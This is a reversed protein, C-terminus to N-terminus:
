ALWGPRREWEGSFVFEAIRKRQGPTEERKRLEDPLSGPDGLYGLAIASVPESSAPVNYAARVKEPIFGAMQHVYLDLATTLDKADYARDGARIQEVAGQAHLASSAALLMVTTLVSVRM